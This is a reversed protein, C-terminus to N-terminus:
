AFRKHSLHCLPITVRAAHPPWYCPSCRTCDGCVAANTGHIVVSSGANEDALYSKFTEFAQGDLTPQTAHLPSTMQGRWVSFLLSSFSSSESLPNMPAPPSPAPARKPARHACPTGTPEVASHPLRHLSLLTQPSTSDPLPLIPRHARRQSEPYLRQRRHLPSGPLRTSQPRASSLAFSLAAARLGFRYSARAPSRAPSTSHAASRGTTPM